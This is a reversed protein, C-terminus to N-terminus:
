GKTIRSIRARADPSIISDARVGAVSTMSSSTRLKPRGYLLTLEDLQAEAEACLRKRLMAEIALERSGYIDILESSVNLTSGGGAPSSNHGSGATQRRNASPVLRSEWGGQPRMRASGTRNQM